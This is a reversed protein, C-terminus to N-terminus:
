VIVGATQFHCDIEQLLAEESEDVASRRCKSQRMRQKSKPRLDRRGRNFHFTNGVTLMMARQSVKGLWEQHLCDRGCSCLLMWDGPPKRLITLLLDVVSM